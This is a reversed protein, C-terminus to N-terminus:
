EPLTWVARYYIIDDATATSITGSELLAGIAANAQEVESENGGAMGALQVLPLLDPGSMYLVQSANELLLGEAAQFTADARLGGDAGLSAQAAGPTGIFLLNDTALILLEITMPMDQDPQAILRLGTADGLTAEEFTINTPEAAKIVTELGTVIQSAVGEGSVEVLLGFEAPFGGSMLSQLDTAEAADASLGAYLAYGGSLAPLLETELDLGTVAQVAVTAQALGQEIDEPNLGSGALMDSQVRLNQLGNRLLLGLDNGYMVLPMGAPIRAVIEPNVPGPQEVSLGMEEIRKLYAGGYPQVIDITLSRGDLVTFGWVQSPALGAIALLGGTPDMMAFQGEAGMMSEVLTGLNLYVSINYDPEPLLALTSNFDAAASLPAAPMETPLISIDNTALLAVDAGLALIMPERNDGRFQYTIFDGQTQKRRTTLVDDFFAEAADRDTIEVAALVPVEDDNRRNDDFATELSIIGLSAVEGLWPRITSQFDGGGFAEAIGNDLSEGLLQVDEANPVVGQLRELLSDWVAIYDDDTRLSVFVPTSEPFWSALRNLDTPAAAAAPAILLASLGVLLLGVVILRKM